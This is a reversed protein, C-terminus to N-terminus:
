AAGALRTRTDSHHKELAQNVADLTAELAVMTSAHRAPYDAVQKLVRLGEFRGEPGDGGSKLMALMADRAEVIEQATAGLISEGVVGAAAQGLACAKVTQAFDSIRGRDDLAVDVTAKSGCLKAVREATGEPAALRGSHPLNAALSLIRASYLDDIM